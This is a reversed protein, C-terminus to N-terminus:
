TGAELQVEDYSLNMKWSERMKKKFYFLNRCPKQTKSVM